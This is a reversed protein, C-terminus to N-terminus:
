PNQSGYMIWIWIQVGMKIPKLQVMILKKQQTKGLFNIKKDL